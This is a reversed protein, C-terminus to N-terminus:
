FSIFLKPKRIQDRLRAEARSRPLFFLKEEKRREAAGAPMKGGAPAAPFDNKAKPSLARHFWSETEHLWPFLFSHSLQKGCLAAMRRTDAPYSRINEAKGYPRVCLHAGVFSIVPQM